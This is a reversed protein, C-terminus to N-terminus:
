RIENVRLAIAEHEIYGSVINDFILPWFRLFMHLLGNFYCLPRSSWDILIYQGCLVM